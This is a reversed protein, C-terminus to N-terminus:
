KEALKKAELLKVEEDTQILAYVEQEEYLHFLLGLYDSTQFLIFFHNFLHM